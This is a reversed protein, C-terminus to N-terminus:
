RSAARLLDFFFDLVNHEARVAVQLGPVLEVRALDLRLLALLTERHGQPLDPPEEAVGLDYAGVASDGLEVPNVVLSALIV